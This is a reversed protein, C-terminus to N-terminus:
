IRSQSLKSQTNFTVTLPSLMFPVIESKIKASGELFCIEREIGTKEVKLGMEKAFDADIYTANSCPDMAVVIRKKKNNNTLMVTTTRIACYDGTSEGLNTQFPSYTMLAIQEAKEQSLYSEISLFTRNGDKRNHLQRHHLRDCGDIGCQRTPHFTCDKMLHGENLCHICSRSGKIHEYKDRVSLIKFDPCMYLMHDSKCLSCPKGIGRNTTLPKAFKNDGQNTTLPLKAAHEDSKPATSTESAESKRQSWSPLKAHQSVTVHSASQYNDEDDEPNPEPASPNHDDQSRTFFTRPSDDHLHIDALTYANRQQRVFENFNSLTDPKGHKGLDLFYGKLEHEPILKKVQANLVGGQDMVGTEGSFEKMIKTLLNELQM